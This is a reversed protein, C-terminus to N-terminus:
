KVLFLCSTCTPLYEEELLAYEEDNNHSPKHWSIMTGILYLKENNTQSLIWAVMILQSGQTLNFFM